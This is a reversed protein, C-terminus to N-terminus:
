PQRLESCMEKERKQVSFLSLEVTGTLQYPLSQVLGKVYLYEHGWLLLNKKPIGKM